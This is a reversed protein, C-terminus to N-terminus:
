TKFKNYSCLLNGYVKLNEPLKKLQNNSCDFDEDFFLWGNKIVGGFKKQFEKQLNKM